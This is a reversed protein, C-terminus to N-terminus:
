GEWEEFTGYVGKSLYRESSDPFVTVVTDHPADVEGSAVDEAVSRAVVSNAASSSAVLHGEEAALRQMEAHTDRDSVQVVDDVLEPDFLENTTPDHTGIGETKYDAEAAEEGLFTAYLSGEPEVAVVHTDPVRDRAYRAVGMLTGATGCGAVVAGVDGDLAEFVEPATTEYHAEANLPNSFQQPVVADDLEDALEHAREIAGGMGEATPTNIVDAGLARMLQQKEVSFREPVVFVARVGLQGAAVAFGIGTNGATPEVVTGDPPLTGDDLMAELM